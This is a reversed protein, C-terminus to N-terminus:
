DGFHPTYPVEPERLECAVGIKSTRHGQANMGLELKIQETFRIEGVAIAETWEPVRQLKQDKIAQDIWQRHLTIFQNADNAGSLKVLKDRDILRYRRPPLQIEHYGSQKWLSPHIVVGARVMNTDIYTLCGM